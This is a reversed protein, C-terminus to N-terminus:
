SELQKEIVHYKEELETPTKASGLRRVEGNEFVEYLYYRDRNGKKSTLVFICDGGTNHYLVWTEEGKPIQLNM